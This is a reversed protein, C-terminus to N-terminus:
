VDVRIASGVQYQDALRGLALLKTLEAERLAADAAGVCVDLLLAFLACDNEELQLQRRATDTSGFQGCFKARWVPSVM